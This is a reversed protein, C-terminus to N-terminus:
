VTSTPKLYNVQLNFVPLDFKNYDVNLKVAGRVDLIRQCSCIYFVQVAVLGFLFFLSRFIVPRLKATIDDENKPKIFATEFDFVILKIM